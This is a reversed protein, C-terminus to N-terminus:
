RRAGGGKQRNRFAMWAAEFEKVEQEIDRLVRDALLARDRLDEPIDEDSAISLFDMEHAVLALEQQAVVLREKITALMEAAQPASTITITM